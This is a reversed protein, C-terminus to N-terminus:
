VYVMSRDCWTRAKPRCQLSETYLRSFVGTLAEVWEERTRPPFPVGGAGGTTQELPSNSSSSSSSSSSSNINNNGGLPSPVVHIPRPDGAFGCRIFASLVSASVLPSPPLSPPLSPLLSPPHAQTHTHTLSLSLSLSRNQHPLRCVVVLLYTGLDVIRYM